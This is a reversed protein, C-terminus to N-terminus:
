GLDLVPRVEIHGTPAWPIRAAIDIADDLDACELVYYGGLQEKTDAFPGDTVLREGNRVSVTTATATPQLAAGDIQNGREALYAGFRGWEAMAEPAMHEDSETNYLLFMYKM